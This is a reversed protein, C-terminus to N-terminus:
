LLSCYGHNCKQLSVKSIYVNAFISTVIITDTSPKAGQAINCSFVTIMARLASGLPSLFTYGSNSGTANKIQFKALTLM